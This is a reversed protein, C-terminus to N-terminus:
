FADKLKVWSDESMDETYKTNNIYLNANKDRVFGWKLNHRTAYDKFAIFKV